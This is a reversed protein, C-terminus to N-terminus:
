TFTTPVTITINKGGITAITTASGSASLTAGQNVVSGWTWGESSYM